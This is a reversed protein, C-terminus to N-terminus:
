EGDSEILDDNSDEITQLALHIKIDGVTMMKAGGKATHTAELEKYKPHLRCLNPYTDPNHLAWMLTPHQTCWYYTKGNAVKFEPDRAGPPVDKWGFIGGNRTKYV